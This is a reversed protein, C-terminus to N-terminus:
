GYLMVEELEDCEVIRGDALTVIVNTIFPKYLKLIKTRYLETEIVVKRVSTLSSDTTRISPDLVWDYAELMMGAKLDRAFIYGDEPVLKPDPTIRCYISFAADKVAEIMFFKRYKWKMKRRKERSSKKGYYYLDRCERLHRDDYWSM